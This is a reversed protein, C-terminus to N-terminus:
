VRDHCKQQMLGGHHGFIAANANGCGHENVHNHETVPQGTADVRLKLFSNYVIINCRKENLVGM